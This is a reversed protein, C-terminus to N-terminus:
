IFADFLVVFLDLPFKRGVFGTSSQTGNFAYARLDSRRHNSGISIGPLESVAPLKRGTDPQHRALVRGAIATRRAILLRPSLYRRVSSIWPARAAIRQSSPFSSRRLRHSRDNTARCPFFLAATANALLFARIM